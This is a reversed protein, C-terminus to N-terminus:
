HVRFSNEHRSAKSVSAICGELAAQRECPHRARLHMQKVDRGCISRKGMVRRMPELAGGLQADTGLVGAHTHPRDLLVPGRLVDDLQM